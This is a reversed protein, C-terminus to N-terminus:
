GGGLIRKLQVVLGASKSRLADVDRAPLAGLEGSWTLADRRAQDLDREIAALMLTAFEKADVFSVGGDPWIFASPVKAYFETGDPWAFGAECHTEESSQRKELNWGPEGAVGAYVGDILCEVNGFKEEFVVMRVCLKMAAKSDREDIGGFIPDSM